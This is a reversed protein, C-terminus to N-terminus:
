AILVMGTLSEHVYLLLGMVALLGGAYAIQLPHHRRWEIALSAILAGIVFFAIVAYLTQLWLSPETASRVPVSVSDQPPQQNVTAPVAPEGERSTTALSTYVLPETAEEGGPAAAPEVVLIEESVPPVKEVVVPVVPTTEVTEVTAPAVDTPTPAVAVKEVTIESSSEETTAGAVTAARPVGFLQVVFITPSGKYEGKATGVGIEVYQGNMINARHTPSDMWAEVVESSETFHVALNEGAQLYNYGAQEFWYWPSVGTPSYHAFYGNEAMHEAKLKAAADLTANRRLLSLDGSDREDNTLDVIVAPLITSVLWDSSIWLLAQLNAMTFSLLILVLMLGVSVRELVDPRYNNGEHPIFFDKFRRFM